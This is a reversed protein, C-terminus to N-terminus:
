NDDETEEIHIFPTSDGEDSGDRKIYTTIYYDSIDKRIEERSFLKNHFDKRQFRIEEIIEGTERNCYKYTYWAGSSTAIGKDKLFDMISSVDDIGSNYM